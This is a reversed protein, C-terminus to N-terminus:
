DGWGWVWVESAGAPCRLWLDGARVDPLYLYHGAEIIGDNDSGDFSLEVDSDGKNLIFLHKHARDLSIRGFESGVSEQRFSVFRSM